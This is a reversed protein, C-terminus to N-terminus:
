DIISRRRKEKKNIKGDLISIFGGILSATVLPDIKVIGDKLETGFYDEANSPLKIRFFLNIAVLGTDSGSILVEGSLSSMLFRKITSIQKEFDLKDFARATLNDDDSGVGYIQLFSDIECAEEFSIQDSHEAIYPYVDECWYEPSQDIDKKDIDEFVGRTLIYDVFVVFPVRKTYILDEIISYDDIEDKSDYDDAWLKVRFEHIIRLANEAEEKTM